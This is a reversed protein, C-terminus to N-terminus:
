ARKTGVAGVMELVMQELADSQTFMPLLGKMRAEAQALIEFCDRLQAVTVKQAAQM